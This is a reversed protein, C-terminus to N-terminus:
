GRPAPLSRLTRAEFIVVFGALLFATIIRM